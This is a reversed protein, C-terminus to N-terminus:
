VSSKTKKVGTLRVIIPMLIFIAFAIEGVFYSAVVTFLSFIIFIIARIKHMNKEESTIGELLPPKSYAAYHWQITGIIALLLLNIPLIMRALELKEYSSAIGTSFAILIAMFLRISNIFVFRRDIEQLNEFQRVHLSWMSALIFFAIAFSLFARGQGSIAQWLQSNSSIISSEPIVINLVLLTMAFGFVGDSLNEVRNKSYRELKLKSVQEKM